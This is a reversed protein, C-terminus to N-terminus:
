PLEPISSPHIRLTAPDISLPDALAHERARTADEHDFRWRESVRGWRGACESGVNRELVGFGVESSDSVLVTPDWLLSTQACM